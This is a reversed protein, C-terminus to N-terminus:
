LKLTRRLLTTLEEAVVPAQLGEAHRAKIHDELLLVALEQAASNLAAVQQLIDACHRNDDIMRAVGAAQGEVKRARDVLAKKDVWEHKDRRQEAPM